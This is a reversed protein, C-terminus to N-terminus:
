CKQLLLASGLGGAAAIAALGLAGSPERMLEHFLRVVLVAGSAGIPHGRALAGGGRNLADEDIKLEDRWLMAQVAFSEMIEAVAPRLGASGLLARPAALGALIPQEPIGGSQRASHFRLVNSLGLKECARESLLLVAAAADAEVAVTASTLGFQKDQTLTSLKRCTELRLRRTFDDQRLGAAGVLEASFDAHLAKEHSRCAFLEQADRTLRRAKAIEAAADLLDPDRDAWPTFPPRQYYLNPGDPELARHQRLPSRSYSEVGGAIIVDAAGSAIKSAGLIIADLGSCCQTDLTSAYTAEDLGAALAVVRSPNGGGYLANGLVVDQVDIQRFSEGDLLGQIVPAALEGVGSRRWRGNRPSVLSRKAAAIYVQRM